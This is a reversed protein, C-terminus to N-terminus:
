HGYGIYEDIVQLKPKHRRLRRRRMDELLDRERCGLLTVIAGFNRVDTSVVRVREELASRQPKEHNNVAGRPRGDVELM